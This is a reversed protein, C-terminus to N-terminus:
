KNKYREVFSVLQALSLRSFWMSITEHLNDHFCQSVYELFNSGLKELTSIMYVSGKNRGTLCLCVTRSINIVEGQMETEREERLEKFIKTLSLYFALSLFIINGSVDLSTDGSSHKNETYPDKLFHLEWLEFPSRAGDGVESLFRKYDQARFQTLPQFFM